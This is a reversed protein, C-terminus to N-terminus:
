GEWHLPTVVGGHLSMSRRAGEALKWTHGDDGGEPHCSACAINSFAGASAHFITHGTDERRGGPLDVRVDPFGGEGASLFPPERSQAVWRRNPTLAVAVVQGDLIASGPLPEGNHDRPALGKMWVNVAKVGGVDPLKYNG